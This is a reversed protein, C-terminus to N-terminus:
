PPTEERPVPLDSPSAKTAATGFLLAIDGYIPQPKKSIPIGAEKAMKEGRRRKLKDKNRHYYAKQKYVRSRSCRPAKREAEDWGEALQGIPFVSM